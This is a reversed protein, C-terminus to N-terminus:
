AYYGYFLDREDVVWLELDVLVLTRLHGEAVYLTVIPSGYHRLYSCGLIMRSHGTEARSCGRVLMKPCPM